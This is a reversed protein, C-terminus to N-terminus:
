GQADIVVKTFDHKDALRIASEMAAKSQYSDGGWSYWLIDTEPDQAHTLTTTDEDNYGSFSEYAQMCHAEYAKVANQTKSDFYEHGMNRLADYIQGSYIFKINPFYHSSESATTFLHEVVRHVDNTALDKDTDKKTLGEKYAEFIFHIDKNM